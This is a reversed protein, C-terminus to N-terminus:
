IVVVGEAVGIARLDRYWREVPHEKTYGHGGLLQVGDLGIQMGKDAGLRKALAAERAFPLGQEARAAGRWTIMRLGDLEIAINACMFAVSQRHAIPEGFAEREKVYPVVYDLVAHSTGVALAAWGLRSLAIAEAYDDDSAEDEGLRASLPVSVHDLEVQGLAAARIGMSPDAKVTLGSSSSEVIFLTPKGALQAGVIFLEADAAAPVLSKVGDLRYGSPTRVATTRLRTPDFLPQPEAIAVCAQPVNEGAFEKLYTAQQDASGWHTLASAVGGPALIPLALGMDGYALAEAVLVNTVSSRHAAIGEFDEPVNIATVGLEAAKTILDPPYQAAEDAEPAAPRLIEQAFQDVTEVIMKQDDDPTLDFYDRGSAKLRTPGGRLGQIRKFQRTTAGAVSFSTKVGYRLTRNLPDRLHYKDLFDQGVIPTLLGLAIDIGTRKHRHEGVATKRGARKARGNASITNTM